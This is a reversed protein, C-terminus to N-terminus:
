RRPVCLIYSPLNQTFLSMNLINDKAGIDSLKYIGNAPWHLLTTTQFEPSVLGLKELAGSTFLEKGKTVLSQISSIILFQDFFIDTSRCPAIISWM